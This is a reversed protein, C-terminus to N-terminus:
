RAEFNHTLVWTAVSKGLAAGDVTTEANVLFREARDM